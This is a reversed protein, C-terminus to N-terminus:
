SVSTRGGEEGMGRGRPEVWMGVNGVEVAVRKEVQGTSRAQPDVDTKRKEERRM